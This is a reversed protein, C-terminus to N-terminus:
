SSLLQDLKGQNFGIVFQDDIAIVPVAMQGTKKIMEKAAERNEAVNVETFKIGKKSLYEKASKCWPWTSTTYVVVKKEAMKM